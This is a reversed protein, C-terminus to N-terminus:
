RTATGPTGYFGSGNLYPDQDTIHYHYIGEPYDTTAHSHGHFEDLDNNSVTKGDEMPGYVPFGDLLFGLLAEKGKNATLYTPEVHYHYISQGTPHGNYQDFSNVEDTLPQNNPGAYQNFLSVGNLAVGISGLSTPNSSSSKVPNMPIRYTINSEAIKNPNKKWSTNSGNYDEWKDSEWQTGKYYPSKHDPLNTTKIVVFDGDKYIDTAGYIKKYVALEDSGSVPTDEKKDCSFFFLISLLSLGICKINNM